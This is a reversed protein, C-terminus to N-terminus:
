HLSLIPSKVQQQVAKASLSLLLLDLAQKSELNCSKILLKTWIEKKLPIQAISYKITNTNSQIEITQAVPVIANRFIDTIIDWLMVKDM